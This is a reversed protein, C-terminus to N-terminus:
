KRSYITPISYIIANEADRQRLIIAGGFPPSATQKTSKDTGERSAPYLVYFTTYLICSM